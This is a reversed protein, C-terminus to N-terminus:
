AEFRPQLTPFRNKDVIFYWGKKDREFCYELYIQDSSAFMIKHSNHLIASIKFFAMGGYDV